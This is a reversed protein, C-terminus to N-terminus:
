SVRRRPRLHPMLIFGLILGAILGGLHDWIGIGPNSFDWVINLVLWFVWQGM